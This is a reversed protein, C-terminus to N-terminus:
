AQPGVAMSFAMQLCAGPLPSNLRSSRIPQPKPAQMPQVTKVVSPGWRTHLSPGTKVRSTSPHYVSRDVQAADCKGVGDDRGAAGKAKALIKCVQVVQVQQAGEGELAGGEVGPLAVGAGPNRLRGHAHEVGHAQLVGPHVPHNRLLQGPNGAIEALRHHGIHTAKGKRFIHLDAGQQRLLGLHAPQLHVDGAGVDM